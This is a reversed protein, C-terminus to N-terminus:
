EEHLQLAMLLVDDFLGYFLHTKVKRGERRFGITEHLSIAAINSAYVKFGVRSLGAGGAAALMENVLWTGIGRWRHIARVGM